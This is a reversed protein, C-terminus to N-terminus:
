IEWTGLEVLVMSEFTKRACSAGVLGFIPACTVSDGVIWLGPFRLRTVTSEDSSSSSGIAFREGAKTGGRMTRFLRIDKDNVSYPSGSLIVGTVITSGTM